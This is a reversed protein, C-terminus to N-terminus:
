WGKLSLQPDVTRRIMNEDLLHAENTVWKLKSLPMESHTLNRAINKTGSDNGECKRSCSVFKENIQRVFM